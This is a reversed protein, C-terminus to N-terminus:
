PAPCGLAEFPARLAAAAADEAAQDAALKAEFMAAVVKTLAKDETRNLLTTPQRIYVSYPRNGAMDVDWTSWSLRIIVGGKTYIHKPCIGWGDHVTEDAYDWAGPETELSVILGKVFCSLPLDPPPESAKPAPEPTKPPAPKPSRKPPHGWLYIVVAVAVVLPLIAIFPHM